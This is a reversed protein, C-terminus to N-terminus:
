LRCAILGQSLNWTMGVHASVMGNGTYNAAVYFTGRDYHAFLYQAGVQWSNSNLSKDDSSQMVRVYGAYAHLREAVVYGARLNFLAPQDNKPLAIYGASATFNQLRYGVQLDASFYKNTMGAGGQVWTQSFGKSAAFMLCIVAIITLVFETNLRKM